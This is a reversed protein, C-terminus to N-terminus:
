PASGCEPPQIWYARAMDRVAAWSTSRSRRAITWGEELLPEVEEWCMGSYFARRSICYAIVHAVDDLNAVSDSNEETGDPMLGEGIWGGANTEVDFTIWVPSASTNGRICNDARVM